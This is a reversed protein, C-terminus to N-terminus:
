DERMSDLNPLIKKSKKIFGTSSLYSANKEIFTSSSFILDVFNTNKDAHHGQYINFLATKFVENFNLLYSFVKSSKTNNLGLSLKSYYSLNGSIVTAQIKRFDRESNESVFIEFNEPSIKNCVWHVGEHIESLILQSTGLHKVFYNFNSYYGLAYILTKNKLYAQRLNANFLPTQLRLNLDVLICSAKFNKKLFPPLFDASNHKTDLGLQNSLKKLILSTELDLFDGSYFSLNFRKHVNFSNFVKKATYM